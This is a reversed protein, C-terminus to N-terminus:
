RIMDVIDDYSPIGFNALEGKPANVVPKSGIEVWSVDNESKGNGYAEMDNVKMMFVRWGKPYSRLIRIQEGDVMLSTMSYTPAFSNVYDLRSSLGAGGFAAGFVGGFDSKRRWQPNILIMNRNEGVQEDFSELLNQNDASPLLIACTDDRANDAISFLARVGDSEDIISDNIEKVSSGTLRQTIQSLISATMPAAADMMQRAGGPWDDLETAGIVPLLMRVSHRRIGDKHARAIAAAAQRVQDEVGTPFRDELIASIDDGNNDINSLNLRPKSAFNFAHSTKVRPEPSFSLIQHSLSLFVSTYITFLLRMKIFDHVVHLTFKHILM